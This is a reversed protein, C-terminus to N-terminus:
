CLGFYVYVSNINSFHSMPSNIATFLGGKTESLFPLSFLGNIACPIGTRWSKLESFSVSLGCLVQGASPVMSVPLFLFIQEGLSCGTWQPLPYGLLIKEEVKIHPLTLEPAKPTSYLSYPPRDCQPKHHMLHGLWMKLPLPCTLPNM